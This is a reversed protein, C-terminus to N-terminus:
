NECVQKFTLDRFIEVNLQRPSQPWFGRGRGRMGAMKDGAWTHAEFHRRRGLSKRRKGTAVGERRVLARSDDLYTTDDDGARGGGLSVPFRTSGWSYGRGVRQPPSGM